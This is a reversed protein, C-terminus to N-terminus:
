NRPRQDEGGDRPRAFGVKPRRGRLKTNSLAALVAEASDTPVEFFATRDMIDIAGIAKGPLGVENTIAGVLDGPRLGDQRGLGVFLRAMGQEPRESEAAIEEDQESRRRDVDVRSGHTAEWLMQLAVAAVESMDFESSLAEVTEMQGDTDGKELRDRLADRFAGRRRASIDAATPVRAPTIPAGTMYEISRLSRRERPEILTIADGTRGARGTRGIRHIYQEVDFPLDYNIVHTVTEIDLGRAAVDTAILLDVQGDRFRRMVRDREPQGMDGHLADAEYGRVRLADSLEQTTARTRCFVITPGPTELDLVRALADLKKGPMVEYYSQAVSEVTRRKAKIAIREADPLFKKALAAIRPPMTASFLTLQRGEPLESLIAEIDEIFGFALMEDAEDLACFSATSLNLTGRRLHDLVRGPTGVVVQAGMKLARFQRDIPQGGYVPVVRLGTHKSFLHIQEAAQIALERTPVLVIAQTDKKAPDVRQLLPLGFAATKGTGTQAQGIMDRGALLVPIARGQIPTPSEFGADKVAKLLPDSLGLEDFTTPLPTEPEDPEPEPEPRHAGGGPGDFERREGKRFKRPPPPGGAANAGYPRTTPVARRRPPPGSGDGEPRVGHPLARRPPGAPRRDPPPGDPRDNRQPRDIDDPRAL